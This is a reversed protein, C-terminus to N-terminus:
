KFINNFYNHKIKYPNKFGGFVKIPNRSGYIYENVEPYDYLGRKYRALNESIKKYNKKLKNVKNKKKKKKSKSKIVNNYIDINNFYKKFKIELLNNNIEKTDKLLQNDGGFFSSYIENFAKNYDLNKNYSFNYKNNEKKDNTNENSSEEKKNWNLINSSIIKKSNSNLNKEKFSFDTCSFCKKNKNLKNKSHFLNATKSPSRTGIIINKYKNNNNQISNSSFSSFSKYNNLDNYSNLINQTNNNNDQKTLNENKINENSIFNNVLPNKNNIKNITNKNTNETTYKRYMDNQSLCYKLNLYKKKKKDLLKKNLLKKKNNSFQIIKIMFNDEITLHPLDLKMKSKDFSNINVSNFKISKEKKNRHTIIQRNIKKKESDYVQKLKLFEKKDGLNHILDFVKNENKLKPSIYHLVNYEKGLPINIEKTNIFLSKYQIKNKNRSKYDSVIM